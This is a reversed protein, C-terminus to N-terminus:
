KPVVKALVAPQRLKSQVLLEGSAECFVSVRGPFDFRAIYGQGEPGFTVTLSEREAEFLRQAM